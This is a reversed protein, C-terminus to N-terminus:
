STKAKTGFGTGSGRNGVLAEAAAKQYDRVQFSQGSLCTERLQIDLKAGDRLPVDDKVPWGLQLLKEKVIGRDTLNLLFCVCAGAPVTWIGRLPIVGAAICGIGLLLVYM